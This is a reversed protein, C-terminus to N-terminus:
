PISTQTREILARIQSISEAQAELKACPWLADTIQATRYGIFVGLLLVM